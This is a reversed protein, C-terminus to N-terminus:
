AAFTSGGKPQAGAALHQHNGDMLFAKSWAEFHEAPMPRAFLFGQATTCGNEALFVHQEETEVGEAVVEYNLSKAMALITEQRTEPEAPKGCAVALCCCILVVFLLPVPLVPRHDPLRSPCITNKMM